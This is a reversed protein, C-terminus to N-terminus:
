QAGRGLEATGAAAICSSPRASRWPFASSHHGALISAIEDSLMDGNLGASSAGSSPIPPADDSNDGSSSATAGPSEPRSEAFLEEATHVSKHSGRSRKISSRGVLRDLLWQPTRMPRPSLSPAESAGPPAELLRWLPPGSRGGQAM